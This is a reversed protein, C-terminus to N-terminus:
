GKSLEDLKFRESIDRKLAVMGDSMPNGNPLLEDGYLLETQVSIEPTEGSHLKMTIVGVNIICFQISAHRDPNVQSGDAAIVTVDAVSAPPPFTSTLPENLPIACRVTPDLAAAAKVRQRLLELESAYTALLNCALARREDLTRKREEAGAAIERIRTYIQQFDIPMVERKEM